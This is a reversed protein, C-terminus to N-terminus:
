TSASVISLRSAYVVTHFGSKGREQQQKCSNKGAAHATSIFAVLAFRRVLLVAACFQWWAIQCKDPRLNIGGRRIRGDFVARNKHVVSADGRNARGGRDFDGFASRDDAALTQYYSGAEPVAVHVDQGWPQEM